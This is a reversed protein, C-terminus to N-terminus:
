RRYELVYTMATAMGLMLIANVGAAPAFFSAYVAFVGIGGFVTSMTQLAIRLMQYALM